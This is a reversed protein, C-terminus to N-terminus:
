AQARAVCSHCKPAFDRELGPVPIGPCLVSGPQKPLAREEDNKSEQVRRLSDGMTDLINELLNSTSLRCLCQEFGDLGSKVKWDDPLGQIRAWLKDVNLNRLDKLCIRYLHSSVGHYIRQDLYRSARFHPQLEGKPGGFLHGHDVFFADLGGDCGEIFIAQRNDAHRACIDILWARWFSQQSRIRRLSTGPLIEILRIGTGGLFRSGFCLGSVPRLSGERAQMWCDKNREIFDDTILLPKWSPVSLGCARYLENGVSENFLLNKGQLNNFFKVVYFSGDNAQALIAQSGGHLKRIYRTVFAFDKGTDLMARGCILFPFIACDEVCVVPQLLWALCIFLFDNFISKPIEYFLM